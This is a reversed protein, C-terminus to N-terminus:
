VRTRRSIGIFGLLATGFLWVAAPVPIVAVDGMIEVHSISGSGPWFDTLTITDIMGVLSLDFVYLAPTSNGDKIVLYCEGCTIPNNGPILEILADEPDL